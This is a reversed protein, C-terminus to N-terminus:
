KIQFIKFKAKAAAKSAAIIQLMTCTKFNDMTAKKKFDYSCQIKFDACGPV